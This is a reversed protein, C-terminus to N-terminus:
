TKIDLTHSKTRKFVYKFLMVVFPLVLLKGWDYATCFVVFLLILVTAIALSRLNFRAEIISEAPRGTKTLEGKGAIAGDGAPHQKRKRKTKEVKQEGGATEVPVAKKEEVQQQAEALLQADARAKRDKARDELVRREVQKMFDVARGAALLCDTTESCTGILKIFTPHLPNDKLDLYKLNKLRGFSLPLKTIQNKYLDLCRLNVLLGFDDCITSIRNKSLDLKTLQTLDAFNSEITTIRNSSLDLNTARRLPKIEHVPVKAINMLSLDLLDDSLRDRVNIKEEQEDQKKAM